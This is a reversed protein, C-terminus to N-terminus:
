ETKGAKNGANTGWGQSRTMKRLWAVERMWARRPQAPSGGVEGGPAVDDIREEDGLKRWM